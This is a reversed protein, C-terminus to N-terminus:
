RDMWSLNSIKLRNLNFETKNEFRIISDTILDVAQMELQWRPQCSDHEAICMNNLAICAM